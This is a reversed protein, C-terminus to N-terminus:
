CAAPSLGTARRRGIRLPADLSVGAKIMVPAAEGNTQIKILNLKDGDVVYYAFWTGDPSWSGAFEAGSQKDITARIPSGAAM